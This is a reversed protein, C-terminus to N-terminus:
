KELKDFLKIIDKEYIAFSCGHDYTKGYNNEDLYIDIKLSIKVIGNELLKIFDSFGKLKFFSIKYYKFYNWGEKKNTWVNVIALYSLKTLLKNQLTKYTWYVRRELKRGQRDYVCLYIKETKKDIDLKYQYKVGGFTMKNGYVDVYLAKYKKDRKYPYGYLNKLRETEKCEKGDPVSTFLTIASKSYTRRTKIEIGHYDPMCEKNMQLNLENEFTRGISSLSNYMGKIYGKKSIENFREQLEEITKEITVDIKKNM